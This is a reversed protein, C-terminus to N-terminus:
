TPPATKARSTRKGRKLPKEESAMVTAKGFLVCGPQCPVCPKGLKMCADREFDYRPCSFSAM